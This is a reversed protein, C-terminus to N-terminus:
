TQLSDLYDGPHTTIIRSRGLKVSEIIGRGLLLYTYARSCGVADAWENVKWGYKKRGGHAKSAKARREARNALPEDQDRDATPDLM